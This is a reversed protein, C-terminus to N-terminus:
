RVIVKFTGMRRGDREVEVFKVGGRLPLRVVHSGQTLHLSVRGVVRGSVDMVTFTYTGPLAARVRLGDRFAGVLVHPCTGMEGVALDFNEGLPCVTDAVIGSGTATLASRVAFTLAYLSDRTPLAYMSVSQLNLPLSTISGCIAPRLYNGEGDLQMLYADGGSSALFVVHLLNDVSSTIAYRGVDYNTTSFKKAWVLNGSTDMKILVADGSMEGAVYVYGNDYYLNRVRDLTGPSQVIRAWEVAGDSGRVKMLLIDRYSPDNAPSEWTNSYGGVILNGSPLVTLGIASERNGSVFYYSSQGRYRRTWITDGAPSIKVIYVDWDEPDGSTYSRVSDEVRGAILYNGSPDAEVDFLLQALVTDTGFMFRGLRVQWDIASGDSALKLVFADYDGPVAPDGSTADTQGVIVLSGDNPDEIVDWPKDTEYAYIPSSGIRKAWQVNGWADTKVVFLHHTDSPYPTLGTYGIMVFGGDSTRIMWTAHDERQTGSSLKRGYVKEWILNGFTDTKFMFFDGDGLGGGSFSSTHGFVVYGNWMRVVTYPVETGAAGYRYIFTWYASVLVGL